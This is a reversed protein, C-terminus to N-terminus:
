FAANFRGTPNSPTSPVSGSESIRLDKLWQTLDVIGSDSHHLRGNTLCVATHVKSGDACLFLIILLNSLLPTYLFLAFVNPIESYYEVKGLRRGGRM